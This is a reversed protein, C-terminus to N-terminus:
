RYQEHCANCSQGLTGVARRAADADNEEAAGRVLMAAQQMATAMQRYDEDEADEMGEQKLVAAVVAVMAAARAVEEQSEAVAAADVTGQQLTEGLLGELYEMLPLRAVVLSWDVPGASESRGLGTGSVLDQLDAKRQNAENFAETTGSAINVAARALLDRAVAADDQFRVTGEYEAIVAMLMAMISLTSRAERFGGSKFSGPTTLMADYRLKLRKFEDELQVATALSSWRVASSGADSGPSQRTPETGAVGNSADGGNTEEDGHRGTPATESLASIPPREGRVAQSVDEFFIGRFADASYQPPRARRQQGQAPEAVIASVLIGAVGLAVRISPFM